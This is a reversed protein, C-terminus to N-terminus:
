TECVSFILFEICFLFLFLYLVQRVFSGSVNVHSLVGTKIPDTGRSINAPPNWTGEFSTYIDRGRQTLANILQVCMSDTQLPTSAGEAISNEEIMLRIATPLNNEKWMSRLLIVTCQHHPSTLTAAVDELVSLMKNKLFCALSDTTLCLTQFVLMLSSVAKPPRSLTLPLSLGLRAGVPLHSPWVNFIYRVAPIAAKPVSTEVAKLEDQAMTIDGGLLQLTTPTFTNGSMYRLLAFARKRVKPPLGVAFYSLANNAPPMKM